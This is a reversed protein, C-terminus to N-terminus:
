SVCHDSAAYFIDPFTNGNAKFDKAQRLQLLVAGHM